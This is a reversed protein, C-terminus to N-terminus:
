AMFAVGRSRLPRHIVIAGYRDTALAQDGDLWARAADAHRRAADDVDPCAAEITALSAALRPRTPACSPLPSCVTARCM